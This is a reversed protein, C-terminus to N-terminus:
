KKFILIYTAIIFLWLIIWGLKNNIQRLKVYEGNNFDIM